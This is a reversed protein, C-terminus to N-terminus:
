KVVSDLLRKLISPKPAIPPEGHWRLMALYRDWHELDMYYLGSTLAPTIGDNPRIPPVFRPDRSYLLALWNYKDLLDRNVTAGNIPDIAVLGSNQSNGSFAPQSHAVPLPVIPSVCSTLALGILALLACGWIMLSIRRWTIPKLRQAPLPEIICLSGTSSLITM